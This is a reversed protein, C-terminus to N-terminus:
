KEKLNYNIKCALLTLISKKKEAFYIEQSELHAIEVRNRVQCSLKEIREFKPQLLDDSSHFCDFFLFVYPFFM